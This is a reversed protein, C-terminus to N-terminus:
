FALSNITTTCTKLTLRKTLVIIDAVDVNLYKKKKQSEVHKEQFATAASPMTSICASTISKNFAASM